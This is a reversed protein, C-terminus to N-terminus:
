CRSARSKYVIFGKCEDRIIGSDSNFERWYTKIIYIAKGIM